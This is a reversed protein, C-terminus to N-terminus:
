RGYGEPEEEYKGEKEEPGDEEDEEPEGIDDDEEEPGDEVGQPPDEPDEPHPFYCFHHNFLFTTKVNKM